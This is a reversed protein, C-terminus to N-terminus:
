QAKGEESLKNVLTNAKEITCVIAATTKTDIVGLKSLHGYYGKVGRCIGWFEAHKANLANSSGPNLDFTKLM